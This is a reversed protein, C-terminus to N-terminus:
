NFDKLTESIKTYAHHYNAKLSGVSTGMIESIEEYKLEEFYRMNFVARQKPPLKLIANHLAKQIENGDFYEDAELNYSSKSEVSDFPIFKRLNAKKIFNFSENSAIRYLWTYLKSDGRFNPLNNWVKIFSNQLIDNADDHSGVIKRIHWYLRESYNRVILNFAYNEKGGENYIELIDKDSLM